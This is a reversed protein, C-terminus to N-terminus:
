DEILIRRFTSFFAAYRVLIGRGDDVVKGTLDREWPEEPKLPDVLITKLLKAASALGNVGLVLLGSDAMPRACM